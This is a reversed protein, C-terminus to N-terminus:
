PNPRRRVEYSTRVERGLAAYALGDGVRGARLGLGRGIWLLQQWFIYGGSALALAAYIPIRGTGTGTFIAIATLTAPIVFLAGIATGIAVSRPSSREMDNALLGPVFVPTLPISAITAYATSNVGFLQVGIWLLLWSLLGAIVLMAAFKRRGFLIMSPMLLRTVILWTGVAIIGIFLVQAPSAWLMGVYAAGIFGGQRLGHNHLLAWAAAASLLVAFPMWDPPLLVADFNALPTTAETDRPIWFLALMVPIAVLTGTTLVARVTNAIGQRDMDHAILAPIVYGIGVWLPIDSEWLWSGHPSVQLLATQIAMSTIALAMFRTRGYLFVRKSLWRHVLWHSLFANAFTTLLVTPVPLFLAIYGPVVISGTTIERREYYLMSALIGLVFALRVPESGFLYDHM